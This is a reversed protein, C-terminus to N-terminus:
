SHSSIPEVHNSLWNALAEENMVGKAVALGIEVLAKHESTTRYGHLRLFTLCAAAATRKNASEFPHAQSIHFWYAAAVEWVTSHALVGGFGSRPAEVAADLKREDWIRLSGGYRRVMAEHITLVENKTLYRYSM